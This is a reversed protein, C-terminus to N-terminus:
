RPAVALGGYWDQCFDQLYQKRLILLVSLVLAVTKKM